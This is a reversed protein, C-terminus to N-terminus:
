WENRIKRQEEIPNGTWQLKGAIDKFKKRSKETKDNKIGQILYEIIRFRGDRDITDLEEKIKEISVSVM